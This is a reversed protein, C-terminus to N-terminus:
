GPPPSPREDPAQYVVGTAVVASVFVALWEHQTIASGGASDDTTYLILQAVGATAAMWGAKAVQAPGSALNDILAVGAPAGLVAAATLLWDRTSLDSLTLDGVSMIGVLTTAAVVVLGVLAKFSGTLKGLVQM